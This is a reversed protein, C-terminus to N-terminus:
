TLRRKVVSGEGLGCKRACVTGGGNRYILEMVEAVVWGMNSDQGTGRCRWTSGHVAMHRRHQEALAVMDRRNSKKPLEEVPMRHVEWREM